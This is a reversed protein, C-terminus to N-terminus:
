LKEAKASSLSNVFSAVREAFATKVGADSLNLNHSAGPILGTEDAVRGGGGAVAHKWRQILAEKDVFAPMHADDGSLFICIPVGRRGVEGFTRDLTDEDLDSSFYDDDGNVDALSIWRQASPDPGFVGKTASEPLIDKGRGEAVWQKALEISAQREEKRMEVGLGERDSIGAQLIVGDVGPRDLTKQPITSQKWPGVLYEMCIQCGTSHGMLVIRAGDDRSSRALSRVYRVAKALEDADKALSSTTWGTYSSSLLVEIITWSPTLHQALVSPYQPHGLGDGLGGLFLIKHRPGASPQSTNIPQHEFATLRPTYHHLTGPYSTPQFPM